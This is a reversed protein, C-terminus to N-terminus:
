FFILLILIICSKISVKYYFHPLIFNLHSHLFNLSMWKQLWGHIIRVKTVGLSIKVEQRLARWANQEKRTKKEKFKPLQLMKHIDPGIFIFSGNQRKVHSFMDFLHKLAKGKANMARVFQKVLVLKIHVPPM